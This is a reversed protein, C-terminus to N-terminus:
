TRQNPGVLDSEEVLGTMHPPPPTEASAAPYGRYPEFWGVDRNLVELLKGAMDWREVVYQNLYGAWLSGGGSRALIRRDSFALDPRYRGTDSGFSRIPDGTRSILHLPYGVRKETRINANLVLRGGVALGAFLDPTFTLLLTRSCVYKEDFVNARGLKPDFAFVTDCPGIILASIARFDGPRGGNKGVRHVIDGSM